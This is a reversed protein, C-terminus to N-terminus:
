GGRIRGAAGGVSRRGALKQRAGVKARSRCTGIVCRRSCCETSEQCPEFLRSCQPAPAASPNASPIESPSSSPSKSPYISPSSSPSGSPNESPQISPLDSPAESPSLSDLLCVKSELAEQVAASWEGGTDRQSNWFFAGGNCPYSNQLQNMVLAAQAGNINSGTAGCDSICFGFVVKSADGEFMDQVITDFHSLAGDFDTAPRTIGNYYQPMLFDITSNAALRQLLQYYATDPTLDIDMPVHAVTSGEPLKERLGITVQELFNQAESGKTFRSGVQNDEYFYEYDIDVGDIDLEEVIEVLRDTVQEERGYCDEWCDNIDGGIWSGGMGAGGFSILVEKGAAKWEQILDPNPSNNCIPPTAIDCTPSCRNGGPRFEYSVAFGIM